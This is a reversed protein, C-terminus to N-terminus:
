NFLLVADHDITYGRRKYEAIPSQVNEHIVLTPEQVPSKTRKRTVSSLIRERNRKYYERGYERRKAKHAQYYRQSASLPKPETDM